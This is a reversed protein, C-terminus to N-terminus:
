RRRERLRRGAHPRSWPWELHRGILQFGHQADAPELDDRVPHRESVLSQGLSSSRIFKELRPNRGMRVSAAIDIATTQAVASTGPLRAATASAAAGAGAGAAAAAATDVICDSMVM